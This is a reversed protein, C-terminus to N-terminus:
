GRLNQGSLKAIYYDVVPTVSAPSKENASLRCKLNVNNTSTYFGITIDIPDFGALNQNTFIRNQDFDYYFEKNVDPNIRNLTPKINPNNYNTIDILPDNEIAVSIPVGKYLVFNETVDEDETYKRGEIYIGLQINVNRNFRLSVDDAAIYGSVSPAGYVPDIDWSTENNYSLRYPFGNEDYYYWEKRSFDYKSIDIFPLYTKKDKKLNIVSIVGEADAEVEFSKLNFDSTKKPQEFFPVYIDNLLSAYPVFKISM